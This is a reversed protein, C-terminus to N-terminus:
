GKGVTLKMKEKIDKALKEIEGAKRIVELSLTDKSTKDMATKLEAALQLLEASEQALLKERAANVNDIKQEDAQQEQMEMRDNADPQRDAGPLLYARNSNPPSAQRPSQGAATLAFVAMVVALARGLHFVRRGFFVRVCNFNECSPM